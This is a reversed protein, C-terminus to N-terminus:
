YILAPKRWRVDVTSQIVSPVPTGNLRAPECKWHHKVSNLMMLHLRPNTSDIVVPDRLRGDVDAVAAITVRGPERIYPHLTRRTFRAAVFRESPAVPEITFRAGLAEEATRIANAGEASKISYVTRKGTAGATALCLTLAAAALQRSRASGRHTM